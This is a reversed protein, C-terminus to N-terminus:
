EELAPCSAPRFWSTTIHTLTEPRSAPRTPTLTNLESVVTKNGGGATVLVSRAEISWKVRANLIPSVTIVSDEYEANILIEILPGNVIKKRPPQDTKKKNVVDLQRAHGLGLVLEYQHRNIKGGYWEYCTKYANIIAQNLKYDWQSKSYARVHQLNLKKLEDQSFTCLDPEFANLVQEPTDCDKFRQNRGKKKVRLLRAAVEPPMSCKSVQPKHLKFYSQQSSQQKTGDCVEFKPKALNSKGVDRRMQEYQYSTLFVGCVKDGKGGGLHDEEKDQYFYHNSTWQHEDDNSNWEKTFSPLCQQKDLAKTEEYIEIYRYISVAKGILKTEEDDEATTSTAMNSAGSSDVTTQLQGTQTSDTRDTPATTPATNKTATDTMATDKTTSHTVEEPEKGQLCTAQSELGTSPM